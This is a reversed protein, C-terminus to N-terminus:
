DEYKERFKEYLRQQLGDLAVSRGDIFAYEVAHAAMDLLDGGSVVINAAKGVELSGTRQDIGLIEATTLTVMRLAQEKDLGYAAATGAVFPLNRASRLSPYGLAVKVGYNHLMAPMEYPFNLSEDERTPLRHIETLVVPVSYQVLLDRVHWADNGGHLVIRNLGMGKLELIADRIEAHRDARVYLNKTGDMVGRMAELKLNKQASPAAIYARADLILQKIQDVQAQYDPNPRRQTEGQWWRAGFTKTPWNVWIGDDELYIADEWNWADLQVISSSGSVLGGQPAPQALLVGTFRITNIMEADTSYAIVSRVNPNIDGVERFDVSARVAEIDELGLTTNPLILGPYIHKDNTYMVEWEPLPKPAESNPGISTIIGKEFILYGNEIVEGNGIHFTGGSLMIVKEQAKGPTPMQGHVSVVTAVLSFLLISLKKM